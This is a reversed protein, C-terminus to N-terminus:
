LSKVVSILGSHQIKKLLLRVKAEEIMPENQQEFINFMKQIRNCFVEFTMDLESRYFLTDRLREVVVIRKTANGEGSFHARLSIKDKRGNKLCKVPKIWDESMEGQTFSVM